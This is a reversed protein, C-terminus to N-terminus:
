KGAFVPLINAKKKYIWQAEKSHYFTAGKKNDKERVAM